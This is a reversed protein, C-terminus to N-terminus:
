TTSFKFSFKNNDHHIRTQILIIYFFYMEGFDLNNISCLIM